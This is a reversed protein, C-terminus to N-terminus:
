KKTAFILKWFIFGLLLPIGFALIHQYVPKTIHGIVGYIVQTLSIISLAFLIMSLRKGAQKEIKAQKEVEDEHYQRLVNNLDYLEDKLETQLENIQFNNIMMVYYDNHQHYVSVKSFIANLSIRTYRMLYEKVLRHDEPDVRTVEKMLQLFVSRQMVGLVTLWLSKPFSNTYFAKIFDPDSISCNNLVAAGELSNAYYIQRFPRFYETERRLMDAAPAFDSNYVKRLYYLAQHVIAEDKIEETPQAYCVPYFRHNDFFEVKFESDIDHLLYNLLNSLRWGTAEINERNLKEFIAKGKIECLQLAKSREEPRENQSIFFAEDHRDFLRVLYNMQIFDALSPQESNKDNNVLELSLLMVAISTFPHYIIRFDGPNFSIPLKQVNKTKDHTDFAKNSLWYTKNNFLRSPLAEKKLKMIFCSSDDQKGTETNKVFFDRVHDLLFDLKPVDGATQEWIDSGTGSSDSTWKIALRFPLMLTIAGKDLKITNM